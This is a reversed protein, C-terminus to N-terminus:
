LLEKVMVVANEGDQYYNKRQSLFNYGLREYLARAPANSERVELFVKNVGTKLLSKEASEILLKAIGRRRKESVVFVTEIDSEDMAVSYCLFGVYGSDDQASLIHFRGGEFASKLQNYNWGDSFDRQVKVVTDIDSSFLEKIIM